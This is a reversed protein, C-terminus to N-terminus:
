FDIYGRHTRVEAGSRRLRVQVRHWSGDDKRNSPYYGLVYQERLEHLVQVFITEIQSARDVKIIRGGSDEVSQQLLLFQDRFEDSDRWASRMKIGYEDPAATGTQGTLRIWYIVVRSRQAARHVQPMKLVSHSDVGDSLLILVRRGQRVELLKLAMYLHDHLATGGSAEAGALAAILLDHHGTFPTTNLVQHSYILLKARDFPQMGRVFAAAGATAHALREGHMSASADILLVATFPIDGKAFTTVEQIEDNDRVIFEEAELDLVRNAGNTVTVYLQQLEVDYDRAIPVPATRVTSTAHSGLVDRATVSFRHAVNEEGLDVEIGYPPSTAVGVAKGDVYFEVEAIEEAAAVEARIVTNGIVFSDREPEVITVWITRDKAVAGVVAMLLVTTSIAIFWVLPRRRM